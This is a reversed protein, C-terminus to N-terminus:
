AVKPFGHAAVKKARFDEDDTVDIAKELWAPRVFSNAAEENDFEVEVIVGLVPSKYLDIEFIHGGDRVMYRVKEIRHGKTHKWAVSFEWQQMEHEAESRVLGGDSKITMFFQDKGNIIQRRVRLEGQDSFLYGQRQDIAILAHSRAIIPLEERLYFKMEIERSTEELVIEEVQSIVEEIDGDLVIVNPHDAWAALIAEDLDVAEQVTRVARSPNERLVQLYRDPDRVALSRLNIVIDYRSYIDRKSMGFHQEISDWGGPDYAAFDGMGRDCLCAKKNNARAALEWLFEGEEQMPRLARQFHALVNPNVDIDRGLTPLLKMGGMGGTLATAYEPIEQILSSYKKRLHDWVTSKGSADGGTIVIRKM